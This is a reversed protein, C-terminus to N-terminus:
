REWLSGRNDGDALVERVREQGGGERAGWGRKGGVREYRNNRGILVRFGNPSVYERFGPGNAGAAGGARRAAAKRQKNGTKALATVDAPPAM